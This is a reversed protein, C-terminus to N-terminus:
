FYFFPKGKLVVRHLFIVQQSPSSSESRLKELVDEVLPMQRGAAISFAKLLGDLPDSSGCFYMLQFLSIQFM